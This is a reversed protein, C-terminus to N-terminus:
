ARLDLRDGPAVSRPPAALFSEWAEDSSDERAAEAKPAPQRVTITAGDHGAAILAGRLEDRADAIVKRVTPDEVTFAVSVAEDVKTVVAMVDGLKSMNLFLAVTFRDDPQDAGGGSMGRRRYFVQLRADSIGTRPDVPLELHAYQNLGDVNRIQQATIQDILADTRHLAQQASAGVPGSQQAVSELRGRLDLLQAKLDGELVGRVVAPPAVLDARPAAEPVQATTPPAPTDSSKMAQSEVANPAPPATPDRSKADLVAAADVKIPPLPPRADKAPLPTGEIAVVPQDLKALTAELGGALSPARAIISDALAAPDAFLEPPVLQGLLRSAVQGLPSQGLATTTAPALRALQQALHVIQDGLGSGDPPATAQQLLSQVRGALDPRNALLQALPGDPEILKALASPIPEGAPASANPTALSIVEPQGVVAGTSGNSFMEVAAANAALSNEIAVLNQQSVQAVRGDALTLVRLSPAGEGNASVQLTLVQGPKLSTGSATVVGKGGLNIEFLNSGLSRIVQAQLVEGPTLSSVAGGPQGALSTRAQLLLIPELTQLSVRSM